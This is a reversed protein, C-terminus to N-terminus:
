RSSGVAMVWSIFPVHDSVFRWSKHEMNGGPLEVTRGQFYAMGFPFYDEPKIGYGPKSAPSACIKSCNPMMTSHKCKTTKKKPQRNCPPGGGFFFCNDYISCVLLDWNQSGRSPVMNILWLHIYLIWIMLTCIYM